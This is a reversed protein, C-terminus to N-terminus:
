LIPGQDAALQYLGLTSDVAETHDQPVGTGNQHMLALNYQAPAHRRDAPPRYLPVAEAHDQPVGNGAEHMVGLNHQAEVYGQDVALRYLRVAEYYDQPVWTGDNYV